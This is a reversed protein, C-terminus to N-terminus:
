CHHRIPNFTMDVAPRAQILLWLHDNQLIEPLSVLVHLTVRTDDPLAYELPPISALASNLGNDVVDNFADIHPQSLSQLVQFHNNTM